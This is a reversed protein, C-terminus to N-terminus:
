GKLLLWGLMLALGIIMAFAYHYLYGTQLQRVVSSFWGVTRASGNVLLGDIVVEDGVRWLGQGLRRAGPALVKENFDDFYFKNVLTRYVAALSKAARDAIEPRKLYVFWAVGVGLLSLMVPMGVIGHALFAAATTGHSGVEGLVNRSPDVFIADGFFSGFLMSEVTLWGIVVSPIALLVLPGTVVLPTEHVHARAEATMREEGHFVLFIMRFTYLATVFVGLLVCWYAYGAGPISSAHVAEIIADKSFFGSFAPFGILALSGLLATWYTIPMYKRLGGMRRMDQEHHLAIIVSGAALFLLAKFFAHTMLWGLGVWGM